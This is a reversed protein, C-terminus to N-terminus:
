PTNTRSSSPMSPNTCILSILQVLRRACGPSITLRPSSISTTTNFTLLSFCSIENPRLCVCVFGQAIAECFYGAPAITLALTRLMVLKPAKTSTSGPISPIIWIESRLQVRLCLWGPSASFFPWSIFHITRSTFSSFRRIENPILCIVSSGHIRAM